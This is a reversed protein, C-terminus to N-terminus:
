NSYASFDPGQWSNLGSERTTWAM